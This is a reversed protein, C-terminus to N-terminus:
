CLGTTSPNGQKGTHGLADKLDTQGCIQGCIQSEVAEAQLNELAEVAPDTITPLVATYVDLTMRSDAHGLREQVVKVGVGRAALLSAHQRRLGQFTFRKPLGARKLLPKFDKHILNDKRIPEGKSNPFVWPSKGLGEDLMRKRYERLLVTTEKPLRVVRKSSETKLSGRYLRGQEDQKLSATVRIYGGTLDIDEWRLALAEGERLGTWLAVEYLVQYKSSRAAERFKAVQEHTLVIPQRRKYAPKEVRCAVNRGVREQRFAVNLGRRLAKYAEAQTAAGVGQRRLIRFMVDVDPPSLKDLQMAGICPVIYNRVVQEYKRYTTAERNNRVTGLWMGLWEGITLKQHNTTSEPSRHANFMAQQVARKSKAYFYSPVSNPRQIRGEWRGDKRKRLTGSGYDRRAM